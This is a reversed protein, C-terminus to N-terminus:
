AALANRDILSMLGGTDLILGIRGDGLIAGGAVGRVGRFMDGLGKIVVEQKGLLADVVVALSRGGDGLVVLAVVDDDRRAGRREGDERITPGERVQHEILIERRVSEHRRDKAVAVDDRKWSWGSRESLPSELKGRPSRRDRHRLDASLEDPACRSSGAGKLDKRPLAERIIWGAISEAPM